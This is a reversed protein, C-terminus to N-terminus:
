ATGEMEYATVLKSEDLTVVVVLARGVRTSGRVEVTTMSSSNRVDRAPDQLVEFIEDIKIGRQRLRHGAHNSILLDNM